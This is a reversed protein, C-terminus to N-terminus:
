KLQINLRVIDGRYVGRALLVLKGADDIVYRNVNAVAANLSIKLAKSTELDSLGITMIQEVAGVRVDPRSSVLQLATKSTFHERPIDRAVEEAIYLDTYLYPVDDRWNRRKLHRYAPAAVGFELTGPIQIDAEEGMLEIKAGERAQLLGFYDTHLQCWLRDSPTATVFTGKARFRRILGEEELINLAQRVTEKAADVEKALEEVTPIRENVAWMGTEIRRRFLASLAIYRTVGRQSPEADGIEDIIRSSNM